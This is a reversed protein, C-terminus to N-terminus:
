ATELRAKETHDNLIHALVMRTRDFHIVSPDLVKRNMGNIYPPM